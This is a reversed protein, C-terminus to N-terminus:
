PNSNNKPYPNPQSDPNESSPNQEIPPTSTQQQLKNRLHAQTLLFALSLAAVQEPDAGKPLFEM